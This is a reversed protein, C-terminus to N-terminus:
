PESVEGDAPGGGLLEQVRSMADYPTIDGANFQDVVEALLTTTPACASCLDGMQPDSVWSCGGECPNNETCGCIRCRAEGSLDEDDDDNPCRECTRLGARWESGAVRHGCTGVVYGSQGPIESGPAPYAAPDSGKEEDIPWGPWDAPTV